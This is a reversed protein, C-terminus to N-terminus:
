VKMSTIFTLGVPSEVKYLEDEFNKVIGFFNGFGDFNKKIFRNCLPDTPGDDGKKRRGKKQKVGEGERVIKPSRSKVKVAKNVKQKKERKKPSSKEVFLKEHVIREKLKKSNLDVARADQFNIAVSDIVDNTGNSDIPESEENLLELHKQLFELSAQPM